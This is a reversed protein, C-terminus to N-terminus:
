EKRVMSSSGLSSRGSAIPETRAMARDAPGQRGPIRQSQPSVASLPGSLQRCLPANLPGPKVRRQSETKHQGAIRAHATQRVCVWKICAGTRRSTSVEPQVGHECRVARGGPGRVAGGCRPSRILRLLRGLRQQGPEAPHLLVDHGPLHLQAHVLRDGCLRGVLLRAAHRRLCRALHDHQDDAGSRGPEDRLSHRDGGAPVGCLNIQQGNTGAYAPSAMMVSGLVGAAALTMAATKMRIKM